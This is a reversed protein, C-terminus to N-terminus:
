KSSYEESMEMVESAIREKGKEDDKEMENRFDNWEKEITEYGEVALNMKEQDNEELLEGASVQEMKMLDYLERAETEDPPSEGEELLEQYFTEFDSSLLNTIEEHYTELKHKKPEKNEHREHILGDMELENDNEGM